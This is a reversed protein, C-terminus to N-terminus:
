RMMSECSFFLLSLPVIMFILADPKLVYVLVSAPPGAAFATAVKDPVEVVRSASDSVSRAHAPLAPAALTTLLYRM